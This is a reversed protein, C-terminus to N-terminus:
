SDGRLHRAARIVESRLIDMTKDLFLEGDEAVVSLWPDMVVTRNVFLRRDPLTPPVDIGLRQAYDSIFVEGYDAPSMQTQSILLPYQQVDEGYDVRTGHAEFAGEKVHFADYVALNLARCVGVDTNVSGDPLKLNFTYDVINEDPGLENFMALLEPDAIIDAVPMTCLRDINRIWQIEEGIGDRESPLRALPVVIFPDSARALTAVRLYFAKASRMVDNILQGYGNESPRLVQHSLYVAAPAAGPKSGEIGFEGVSVQTGPSGIVPAGFTILNRQRGDRYCLAGAPYQIFGMKHPDITVSDTERVRSFATRTHSNLHVRSQDTIFPEECGEGPDAFDKRITTQLYGAWAADTHVNFELGKRRFEERVELVRGVPDCAGEETSGTVTVVLAVPQRMAVLKDLKLRLIDIDMRADADVSIGWVSGPGDGLGLVSAAKPWSYHMTVPAVLVPTNSVGGMYRKYFTFLGLTNPAFGLARGWLAERAKEDFGMVDAMQDPLSLAHDMAINCLDWTTITALRQTSRITTFVEFEQAHRALANTIEQDLTLTAGAPATQHDQSLADDLMARVAVPFLRLERNAWLAELNAVSGDATIHGWPEKPSHAIQNGHFPFGIMTCLDWGVILELFTTLTSAQVTVNNPNHLMTAFYGVIGPLLTDHLMHGQYRMSSYPTGHLKLKALLDSVEARLRAVAVQYAPSARVEETIAPPDGPLYSQRYSATDDIAQTILEKLLSLHEARPGLFMAAAHGEAPDVRLRPLRSLLEPPGSTLFSTSTPHPTLRRHM